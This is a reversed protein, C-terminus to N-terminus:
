TELNEGIASRAKSMKPQHLQAEMGIRAYFWLLAVLSHDMRLGSLTFLPVFIARALDLLVLSPLKPVFRRKGTIATISICGGFAM